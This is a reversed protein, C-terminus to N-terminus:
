HVCVPLLFMELRPLADALRLLRVVIVLSDERARMCEVKGVCKGDVKRERRTSVWGHATPCGAKQTSM